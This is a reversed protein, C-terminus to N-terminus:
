EPIVVTIICLQCAINVIIQHNFNIDVVFLSMLESSIFDVLFESVAM